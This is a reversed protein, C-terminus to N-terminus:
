AAFFLLAALLFVVGLGARMFLFKRHNRLDTIAQRQAGSTGLTKNTQQLRSLEAQDGALKASATGVEKHQVISDGVELQDMSIKNRLSAIDSERNIALALREVLVESQADDSEWGTSTAVFFVVAVVLCCLGVIKKM